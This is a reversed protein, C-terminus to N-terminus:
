ELWIDGNSPSSPASTRIKNATTATTATTATAAEEATLASRASTVAFITDIYYYTGSYWCLYTGAPLTKNSSSSIIGNIYVNKAGTSNVNLTIVGNYTNANTFTILFARSQLVFGRMSAVKAQETGATTCYATGRTFDSQSAFNAKGGDSGLLDVNLMGTYGTAKETWTVGSSDKNTSTDLHITTFASTMNQFTGVFTCNTENGYGYRIGLYTKGTSENHIKIPVYVTDTTYLQLSGGLTNSENYAATIKWDSCHERLYGSQRHSFMKGIFGYSAGNSSVGDLATIDCMLLISKRYTSNAGLGATVVAMNYANGSSSDTIDKLHLVSAIKSKIYNWLNSVKFWRFTGNEASVTQNRVAIYRNDDFATTVQEVGGIINYEAGKATTQGTGGQSVPVPIDLPTISGLAEAVAGSTVPQNNGSEITSTATLSELIINGYEDIYVKGVYNGPSLEVNAVGSRGTTLTLKGTGTLNRVYVAYSKSGTKENDLYFTFTKGTGINGTFGVTNFIVDSSPMSTNSTMTYWKVSETTTTKNSAKQIQKLILQLQRDLNNQAKGFQFELNYNNFIWHETVSLIQVQATKGSFSVTITDGVFYEERYIYPCKALGSGALEVNQGYQALMSLAEAEYESETTMGTQNDWAEYRELGSPSSGSIEKEGEYIDRSSGIGKGGIYISNAYSESSDKFSGKALSDYDTSFKVTSSRDTGLYCELVLSNNIFSVRWGIKSQTAITVLTDYLNSFAEAVSYEDGIADAATPITNTIPLRRKSEADTGCQSKVLERLCIEGKATMSWNEENNLNKIIRRKFIYRADKGSIVRLQSGKGDSGISDTITLIEGFRYPNDGFQVFLGRKFKQANPINYNITIVFDGAEYVNDTFSIEKFDDIIAQAIFSGNEYTYLKLNIKENYM